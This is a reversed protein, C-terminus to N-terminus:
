GLRLYFYMGNWQLGPLPLEAMHQDLSGYM